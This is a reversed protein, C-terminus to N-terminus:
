LQLPDMLIVQDEGVEVMEQPIEEVVPQEMEELLKELFVQLHEVM